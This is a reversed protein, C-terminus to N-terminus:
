KVEITHRVTARIDDVMQLYERGICLNSRSAVMNTVVHSFYVLLCCVVLPKHIYTAVILSVILRALQM